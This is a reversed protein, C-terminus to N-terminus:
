LHLSVQFFDNLDTVTTTNGPLLSLTHQGATLNATIYVPVLAMHMSAYNAFVQASGIPTGDLEMGVSLWSAATQTWASASLFFTVPGDAPAQFTVKLPLPGVQNILVIVDDM